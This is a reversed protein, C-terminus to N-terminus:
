REHDHKWEQSNVQRIRKKPKVDIPRHKLSWIPFRVIADKLEQMRLPTLPSLYPTGFSELKCMHIIIFLVALIIGAFGFLAAAIMIPLNLMRVTNSMEYSTVTFSMIATMAIVIVMMNSVVGANVVADGIILGGVIGITEGIPSPLRIGAERILEVTIAMLMAEFFPSFPIGSISSKVLTVMEYPIIEFHFAVLAIYIPPLLLTGIFSFLRFLRFVSGAYFRNNYDDPSQFFAFFTVPLIIADTSNDSMIAIRGEMLHAEVRDPRETYLNQPFPSLPTEEIFEEIYGPAFITDISISHLRERIQKLTEENALNNMYIIATKKKSSSGLTIYEVKLDTNKIRKRLMSINTNLDEIFGLHSGRVTKENDPEEPSRQIQYATHFAYAKNKGSLLVISKGELLYSIIQQLNSTTDHSLSELAASLADYSNHEETPRFIFEEIKKQDNLTELYLVKAKGQDISLTDIIFDETNNFSDQLFNINEELSTYMNGVSHHHLFQVM